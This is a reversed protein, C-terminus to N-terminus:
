TTGGKPKKTPRTWNDIAKQPARTLALTNNDVDRGITSGAGVTAHKGITVPAVLSTNSGIFAHDKIVTRHKNAGDYNCTITGAGINANAGVSADGIYSLHNVKAGEGIQSKKIECFNGVRAGSALEAGPRLRAYPGLHCASAVDAQEIHCFSEIEVGDSIRSNRILNYP